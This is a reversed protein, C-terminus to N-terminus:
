SLADWVKSLFIIYFRDGDPDFAELIAKFFKIDSLYFGVDGLKFLFYQGLSSIKNLFM